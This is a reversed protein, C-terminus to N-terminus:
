LVGEEGATLKKVVANTSLLLLFGIVNKFLGAATGYSYDAQYIGHRYVFTDLIDGTSMTTTRYMNFIQDFGASMIGGVSMIFLTIITSKIGPLTIYRIKQQRKAGDIEAAEYLEPNIGTISALYIISSWGVGKWIDTIIVIPRFYQPYSLLDKPEGGFWEVVAAIPGQLGLITAAISSVIVWSLFHPLYSATQFLKKVKENRIENIFIALIIPMPFSFILKGFTIMLTNRVVEWFSYADFLRKFHKFGVWPSGLIGELPKLDKFALTIGYMPIYCFVFLFAIAPLVLMYQYRYKWIRKGISHKKGVKKENMINM